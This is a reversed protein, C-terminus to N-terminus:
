PLRTMEHNQQDTSLQKFIPVAIGNFSVAYMIGFITVPLQELRLMAFDRNM